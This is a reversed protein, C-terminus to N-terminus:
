PIMSHKIVLDVAKVFGLTRQLCLVNSEQCISILDVVPLFRTSKFTSFKAEKTDVNIPKFYRRCSLEDM